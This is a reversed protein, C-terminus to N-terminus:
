GAQSRTKRMAKWGGRESPFARFKAVSSRWRIWITSYTALLTSCISKTRRSRHEWATLIKRIQRVARRYNEPDDHLKLDMGELSVDSRGLAEMWLPFIKMISSQRTTVGLFYMRKPQQSHSLRM